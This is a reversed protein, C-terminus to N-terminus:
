NPRWMDPPGGDFPFGERCECMYWRRRKGRKTGLDWLPCSKPATIGNRDDCASRPPPPIPSPFISPHFSCLLLASMLTLDTCCLAWASFWGGVPASGWLLPQLILLSSLYMVERRDKHLHWFCTEWRCCLLLLYLSQEDILWHNTVTPWTTSWGLM